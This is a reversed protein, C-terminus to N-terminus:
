LKILKGERLVIVTGDTNSTQVDTLTLKKEPFATEVLEVSVRSQGTKVEDFVFIAIDSRVGRPKFERSYFLRRESDYLNLAVPSRSKVIPQVPKMHAAGNASPPQEYETASSVYHFNLILIKEEPTYFRVIPNSFFPVIAFFALTVLGALFPRPRFAGEIKLHNESKKDDVSKLDVAFQRLAHELRRTGAFLRVRQLSARRHFVPRRNRSLRKEEWERGFRYYCQECAVVAVGGARNKLLDDIEQPHVGGICPMEVTEVRLEPPTKVESFRCKFVVIDQKQPLATTDAIGAVPSVIAFEKCSAVCIACGVCRSPDLIAKLEGNYPQGFQPLLDIAGYPCDKICQDCGDCKDLDIVPPPLTKKRKFFPLVALLAGSGFMLLWNGGPSMIKMFYYGFFYFWDFTTQTPLIVAQAPPDSKVPFFLCILMVAIGTYFMLPRPPFLKPSSMRALHVWLIIVTFLTLFIHGFVAVRFFGGVASLDNLLFAGTISADFLPTAALFKATLIGLMKAKEDWVLIFGTVGILIVILFSAVGSVWSLLRRYQGSLLMQLFHLVVFVVLLDSSYRHLSRMPGGVWQRSIGEVSQYAYQPDVNYFLFIYIGSVTAVAFMFIAIDGLHYLPNYKASFVPSFWGAFKQFLSYGNKM